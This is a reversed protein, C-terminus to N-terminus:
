HDGGRRCYRGLFIELDRRDFRVARGVRITPLRGDRALEYVMNVPICLLTAVDKPRLLGHSLDVAGDRATAGSPSFPIQLTQAHSPM